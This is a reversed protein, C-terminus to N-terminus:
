TNSFMSYLKMRQYILFSSKIEVANSSVTHVQQGDLRVLSPAGTGTLSRTELM